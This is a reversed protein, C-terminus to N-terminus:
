VVVRLEFVVLLVGVIYFLVCWWLLVGCCAVAFVFVCVVVCSCVRDCVFVGVCLLCMFGCLGCVLCCLLLVRVYFVWVCLCVRVFRSMVM